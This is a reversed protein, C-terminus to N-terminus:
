SLVSVEGPGGGKIGTVLFPVARPRFVRPGTEMTATVRFFLPTRGPPVLAREEPTLPLPAIEFLDNAAALWPSAGMEVLIRDLLSAKQAREATYVDVRYDLRLRRLAPRIYAGEATFNDVIEGSGSADVAPDIAWPTLLVCPAAPPVPADPFDVRAPVTVPNDDILLDFKGLRQVLAAEVDQVPEPTAAILEDVAGIFGATPDVSRLRVAGISQRLPAPMDGLWLRHLEWTDPRTVPLLRAWTFTVPDAASAAEFALYFPAARGDGARSSRLWLRLEQWPRLDLPDDFARTVSPAPGDAPGGAAVIKMGTGDESIGPRGATIDATAIWQGSADATWPVTLNDIVIGSM